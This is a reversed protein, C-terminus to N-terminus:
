IKSLNFTQNLQGSVSLLEYYKQIVNARALTKNITSGLQEVDAELLDNTDSLGNDYKDKIIRYNELAQEVAENYVLDQKLALDYDEIAKQVQTKIYDTLIAQHNQIELAKSEAIKVNTGNKLIGSLDYSVGVGINMANEVTIVNKLDLATYGGIISIAPYYGSKSMQVNALSAKEQLRIAELDKRNELALADNTLINSMQFDIFDSEKVELKTKPDMKLLSLLEFNVINLNSISQDLSLQIKSVQLQSKLLDNRPIIGNKELEIFDTVRQQASKQNEKLLEVTKQAKYLSAYYNVVMMAVEEKTQMASATEAQYLNDYAKISNKIKFGAFLPLSANVQGIMLQDVVPLAETTTSKNLKLNFSAQALRQYQGSIKLDPYQKNKVQQLEFKKTAVKTNALSVENSQAWALHIAEDLTLSTKEQAEIPSMGIFFIGFLMFQSVKM